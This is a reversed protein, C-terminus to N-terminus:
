RLQNKDPCKSLTKWVSSNSLNPRGTPEVHKLLEALSYGIWPIVMSWAEVCRLRYVREELPALKLLEEMDFVKPKNVEGEVTISWPRTKLSGANQAPDEKGTGFEYFNNYHTVDKFPTLEDPLSGAAKKVNALQEGALVSHPLLSALTAGAALEMFHRRNYFLERPTIESSPIIPILATM